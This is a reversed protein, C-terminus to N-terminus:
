RYGKIYQVKPPTLVQHWSGYTPNPLMFWRSGWYAEFSDMLQARKKATIEKKVHPIFDGLDDGILMLVRYKQVIEQRRNKKEDTWGARENQLLMEEAANIEPFGLALLNNITDLEQPCPAPDNGRRSCTRNTIYIVRIGKNKAERIFACAGPVAAAKAKAIWEDWAAASYASSDLILQGQFPSNDLVTEDIDLIIAPPLHGYNDTQELAASWQNDKLAEDLKAAAIKYTSITIAKYEAATQMWLTSNFNDHGSACSLLSNLTIWFTLIYVPKPM